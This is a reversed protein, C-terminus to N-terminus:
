YGDVGLTSNTVRRVRTELVTHVMEPVNWRLKVVYREGVCVFLIHGLSVVSTSRVFTVVLVTFDFHM